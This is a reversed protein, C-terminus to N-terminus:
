RIEFVRSGAAYHTTKAQEPTLYTIHKAAKTEPTATNTLFIVTEASVPIGDALIAPARVIVYKPTAAPLANIQNAIDVYNQTFAGQTESDM